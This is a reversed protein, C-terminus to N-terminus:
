IEGGSFIINPELGAIQNWVITPIVTILREQLTKIEVSEDNKRQQGNDLGVFDGSRDIAWAINLLIDKVDEELEAIHEMILRKRRNKMSTYVVYDYFALHTYDLIQALSETSDAIIGKNKLDTETIMIPYKKM